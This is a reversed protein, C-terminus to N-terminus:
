QNNIVKFTQSNIKVVYFGKNLPIETKQTLLILKGTADYVQITSLENLNEVHLVGNSCYVNISSSYTNATGSLGIFEYARANKLGFVGFYTELTGEIKVYKGQNSPNDLLNLEARLNTNPLQVPVIKTKDTENPSDAILLNTNSTLEENYEFIRDEFSSSNRKITGIIYGKVWYYDTNGAAGQVEKRISEDTTFPKEKTGNNGSPTYIATLTITKVLAGSTLTLTATADVSGAFMVKILVDSADSPLSSTAPDVLFLSPNSSTVSISSTLNEGTVTFTKEQNQNFFKLANLSTTIKPDVIGAKAVGKVVVDLRNVGGGSLTSAEGIANTTTRLWRLSVSTQDEMAAPLALDALIGTLYNDNAVVITGGAVDTWAGSGVRYQLKFDKPGTDSGRQKSTVTLNEYGTTTFTAIWCKDSTDDGANNWFKTAPIGDANVVFDTAATVTADRELTAISNNLAIGGTAVFPAPYPNTPTYGNWQAITVQASLSQVTMTLLVVLATRLIM